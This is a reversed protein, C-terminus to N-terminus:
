DCCGGRGRESREAEGEPEWKLGVVKGTQGTRRVREAIRHGVVWVIGQRDCVVPVGARDAKLVRRGRLFDALPMSHGGLGLPAFRDGERPSRVVLFPSEPEGFPELQDGDVCEDSESVGSGVSLLGGNWRASGPISLTAEEQSVVETNTEARRVELRTGAREAKLGGPLRLSRPRDSVGGGVLVALERWHRASMARESRGSRRWIRRLVGMRVLIPWKQLKGLDVVLTGAEDAVMVRRALRKLLAELTRHEEGALEGLRVLAESVRPNLSAALQPLVEQRIRARTRRCDANSADERWTQGISQLYERIEGRRVSLFPRILTLDESLKRRPTMGSLGRPGTGRVIRHLITEAQDDLTHAVAVAGAGRAKAVSILWAYRARRAEAEFDAMREPTWSGLDIELELSAALDAVFRADERSAEGRVGHDLHAVSIGLDLERRAAEMVRLLGVSDAGGSVAVVVSRGKWRSIQRIVGELWAPNEGGTSM